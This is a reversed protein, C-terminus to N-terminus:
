QGDVRLDVALIPIAIGILTRSRMCARSTRSPKPTTPQLPPWTTTSARTQLALYRDGPTWLSVSGCAPSRFTDLFTMAGPRGSSENIGGALQDQRCSVATILVADPREQPSHDRARRKSTIEPSESLETRQCRLGSHQSTGPGPGRVPQGSGRREHFDSGGSVWPSEHQAMVWLGGVRSVFWHRRHTLGLVLRRNILALSTVLSQYPHSAVRFV